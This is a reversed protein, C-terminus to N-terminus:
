ATAVRHNAAIVFRTLERATEESFMRAEPLSRALLPNTSDRTALVQRALKTVYVAANPPVDLRGRDLVLVRLNPSAFMAHLKTALREDAVVFYIERTRLLRRVESYLDSCMTVACIPIGGLPLRARVTPLEFPTTVILDVNATVEAISSGSERRDLRDLDLPSPAIGYDRQLEDSISHLQDDNRDLVAARLQVARISRRVVDDAMTLPIGHRRAEVLSDVLWEGAASPGAFRREEAVFVGSRPRVTLLAEGELIRYAVLVAKPSLGLEDAMTRVNPLRAGATLLGLHLHDLVRRRVASIAHEIDVQRNGRLAGNTSAVLSATRKSGRFMDAPRAIRERPSADSKVVQADLLLNTAM